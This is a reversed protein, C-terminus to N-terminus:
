PMCLWVVGSMITDSQMGYLSGSHMIPLANAPVYLITAAILFAWARQISGPRRFHIYAGCRACAAHEVGRASRNLMSCVSCLMLGERAATRTM